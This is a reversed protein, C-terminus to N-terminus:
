ETVPAKESLIKLMGAAIQNKIGETGKMIWEIKQM